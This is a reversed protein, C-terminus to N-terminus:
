AKLWGVERLVTRALESPTKGDTPVIILGDTKEEAM